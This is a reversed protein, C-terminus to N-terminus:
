KRNWAACSYVYPGSGFCRTHAILRKKNQGLGARSGAVPLSPPINERTIVQGRRHPNRIRVERRKEKRVWGLLRLVCGRMRRGEGARGQAAGGSWCKSQIPNSQIARGDLPPPPSGDASRNRGARQAKNTVCLQWEM